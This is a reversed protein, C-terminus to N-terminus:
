HRRSYKQLKFKAQGRLEYVDRAPQGLKLYDDFALVAEPYRKLELLATACAIPLPCTGTFILATECAQLADAHHKQHSLILGCEAHDQAPQQRELADPQWDPDKGKAARQREEELAIAKHLDRLAAALDKRQMQLHARNRYLVVVMPNRRIAEGLQAVGSAADNQGQYAEALNAYAQYLDPKLRIAKQLDAVAEPLRKQRIRLVGRNVLLNYRGEDDPQLQEAKQFDKEAAAFQWSAERQHGAAQM